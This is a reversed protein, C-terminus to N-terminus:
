FPIQDAEDESITNQVVPEAKVPDDKVNNGTMYNELVDKIFATKARKEILWEYMMKDKPNDLNFNVSINKYNRSM